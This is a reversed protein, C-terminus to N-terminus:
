AAAVLAHFRRSDTLPVVTESYEVLISRAIAAVDVNPVGADIVSAIEYKPAIDRYASYLRDLRDRVRVESEGSITFLVLQRAPEADGEKPLIVIELNRRQGTVAGKISTNREYQRGSFAVAKLVQDSFTQARSRRSGVSRIDRYYEVDVVAQAVDLISEALRSAETVTRIEGGEFEIGFRAAADQARLRTAHDSVGNLFLFASGGGGDSVVFHGASNNSIEVEIASNDPGLLPTSVFCADGFGHVEFLASSQQILLAQLEECEIKTRM